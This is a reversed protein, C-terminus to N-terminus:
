IYKHKCKIHKHINSKNKEFTDNSRTQGFPIKRNSRQKKSLQKRNEEKKREKKSAQKSAQKSEKKREKKKREKKRIEDKTRTM